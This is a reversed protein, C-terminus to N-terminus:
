ERARLLIITIIVIINIFIIITKTNVLDIWAYLDPASMYARDEQYLAEELNNNKLTLYNDYFDQFTFIVDKLFNKFLNTNIELSPSSSLYLIALHNNKIKKTEKLLKNKYNIQKNIESRERELAKQTKQAFVTSSFWLTTALLLLVKFSRNM